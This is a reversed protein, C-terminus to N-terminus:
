GHPIERLWDRAKFPEPDTEAVEVRPYVMTRRTIPDQLETTHGHFLRGILRANRGTAM